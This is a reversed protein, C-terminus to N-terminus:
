HFKFSCVFQLTVTHGTIYRVHGSLKSVLYKTCVTLVLYQRNTIDWTDMM